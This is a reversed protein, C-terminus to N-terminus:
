QKKLTIWKTEEQLLTKDTTNHWPYMGGSNTGVGESLLVAEIETALLDRFDSDSLSRKGDKHRNLVDLITRKM